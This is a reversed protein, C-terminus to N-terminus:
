HAILKITKSGDQANLNVIWLGNAIDISTDQNTEFEHVLAGTLAYVKVQTASSVNSIFLQQRYARVTVATEMIDDEIGLSGDLEPFPDWGDNGQTFNLTNIATGDTLEATTLVTSWSARSDSNDVGEANEITGYEYMMSSEGGLSSTWGAPAILSLGESGPYTSEDITTNYFVVESTNPAWPRGFYGPKSGYTSATEVGPVPSVVHCEYMLFGRGSTQQAATIYAADNSSDSTNLVLDTQYFVATMGGFLYDVAGMMAGKYIAVRAGSAGYFSDQRGIVRCNNLIVRDASNAIGIAAAQTVYGASRDQVSTNGYDTPRTPESPAKALVTDESEKQSIYQNFSNELIINEFTVDEATIVVTANWYSTGGGTGEQNVYYTYGNETNVALAEASWKNDTGQSFFNYKQGYYSTIRVANADIDVGENLIAISPTSSANKLTVNHSSVVLMEEYNGPDIVITVLENNPREMNAVADLAANITQYDKDVGVTIVATYAVIDVVKISRFYSTGGVSITVTGDVTGEYVYESVVSSSTSGSTNAVVDGDEITYNSQYYDTVIVKQDVAIPVAITAGTSAVLDPPSHDGRVSVSGSFILGKYAVANSIVKDDFLWESVPDFSLEKSTDAGDVTVNSTLALEIPYADLGDYTISYVGDRLSVTTVDAFTYTYGEENNNTFTLSLANMQEADLDPAIISVNYVPKLTFNVDSTAAATGITITNDLIEYDNVGEASITYELDAELNVTYTMAEADVTVIPQYITEVLPDPTFHLELNSLDSLGTIAGSLNYLDVQLVTIDHTTSEETVEVTDGNTIVYGNAGGLSLAYTYPAPVEISYTGDTVVAEYMKGAENTYQVTYGEPIGPAETADVNGTITIYNAAKRLVRFYSPKGINDYVHYEGAYQAVFQLEVEAAPMEVEDKQAAPDAAYEFNINGGSDTRAHITVEDDEQLNLTLYRNTNAGSNVYVRGTFNTSSAINEDWRTINTNTTRLRDSTGNTVYGLDGASFSPLNVGSTGPTVGDYWANIVEENLHNNYLVEDFQEAGFDWVDTMIISAPLNTVQIAPTYANSGNFTFYLTTAGGVYTFEYYGTQDGMEPYADMDVDMVGLDNGGLSTGGSMTGASYVSGYFRVTTNTGEVDIELSNGEKFAVGYGTSHWQSTAAQTRVKGDPSTTSTVPDWQVGTNTFTSQDGLNYITYPYTVEIAPTYANSGSFTFYLTGAGGTYSYEYYGTQDAMEPYADMDVDLTGLDNGGLSTGGDLTGASYVSGYFRITCTGTVDIELSNGNQFAIGYGASHWLSTAAQTRVNGDPSTTSTVPDWQNGSNTFTSQDGLNYSTTTQGQVAAVVCLLFLQLLFYHKKM